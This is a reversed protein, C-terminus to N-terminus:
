VFKIGMSINRRRKDRRDPNDDIFTKEPIPEYVQTVKGGRASQEALAERQTTFTKGNITFLVRTSSTM